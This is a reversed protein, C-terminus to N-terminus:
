NGSQNICCETIHYDCFKTVNTVATWVAVSTRQGAEIEQGLMIRFRRVDVRDTNIQADQGLIKSPQTRGNECARRSFVM